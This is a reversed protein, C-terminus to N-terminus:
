KVAVRSIVTAAPCSKPQEDRQRASRKCDTLIGLTGQQQEPLEGLYQMKFDKLRQEQEILKNKAVELQERLFVTTTTAQDARTKLNEQIFLTTFRSTAAQALEPGDAVFSSRFYEGPDEIARDYM